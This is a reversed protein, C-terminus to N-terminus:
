LKVFSKTTQFDKTQIQIFYMGPRLMDIDIRNNTHQNKILVISGKTDLVKFSFSDTFDTLIENHAPNPYIVFEPTNMNKVSSLVSSKISNDNCSVDVANSSIWTYFSFPKHDHNIISFDGSYTRSEGADLPMAELINIFPPPGYGDNASHINYQDIVKDDYNTVTVEWNFHATLFTIEMGNDIITDITNGAHEVTLEDIGIDSTPLMYDVGDFDLKLISRSFPCTNIGWLAFKNDLVKIEQYLISSMETFELNINGPNDISSIYSSDDDNEVLYTIGGYSHISKSKRSNFPIPITRTITLTHDLWFINDETLVEIRNDSYNKVEIIDDFFTLEDIVADDRFTYLSKDGVILNLNNEILILENLDELELMSSAVIESNSNVTVIKSYSAYEFLIYISDPSQFAVAKTRGDLEDSYSISHDTLTGNEFQKVFIVPRFYDIDFVDWGLYVWGEEFDLFKGKLCANSIDRDEIIVKDNNEDVMLIQRSSAYFSQNENMYVDQMLFSEFVGTATNQSSLTHITCCLLFTILLQIRM